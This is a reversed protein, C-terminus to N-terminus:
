IKFYERLMKEDVGDSGYQFHTGCFEGAGNATRDDILYDGMVLNKNHTLILRKKMFPIYNKVWENKDAWASSNEWPATSLLYVDYRDDEFMDKLLQVMEPIPGMKSFVNPINDLKGEYYESSEMKEVGSMFDVITNDMDFYVIKKKINGMNKLKFLTLVM